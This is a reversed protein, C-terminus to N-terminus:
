TTRLQLSRQFPEKQTPITKRTQRIRQHLLTRGFPTLTAIGSRRSILGVAEALAPLIKVSNRANTESIGSLDLQRSFSVKHSSIAGVIQSIRNREKKSDDNATFAFTLLKTARSGDALLELMIRLPRFNHSSAEQPLYLNQLGELWAKKETTSLHSGYSKM